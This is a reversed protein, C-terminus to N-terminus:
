DIERIARLAPVLQEPALQMDASGAHLARVVAGDAVFLSLMVRNGGHEESVFARVGPEGLDELERVEFEAGRPWTASTSALITREPELARIFRAAHAESAFRLGECVVNVPPAFPVSDVDEKWFGFSVELLEFERPDLGGETPAAARLESSGYEGGSQRIYEGPLSAPDCDFAGPSDDFGGCAVGALAVAGLFIWSTKPTKPKSSM